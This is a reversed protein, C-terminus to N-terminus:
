RLDWATPPLLLFAWHGTGKLSEIRIEMKGAAPLVILNGRSLDYEGAMRGEPLAYVRVRLSLAPDDWLFLARASPEDAVIVISDTRDKDGLYGTQADAALGTTGPAAIRSEAWGPGAACLVAAVALIVIKRM